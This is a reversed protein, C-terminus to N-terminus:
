LGARARALLWCGMAFILISVARRFADAPIKDLLARGLVTGALTGAAGLVIWRATAALLAPELGAYVPLRALDVALGVATSTAVFAQPSLPTELSLLAAARLGGQNGVLGGFAGSAAGALWALPAPVRLRQAWGSVNLAGALVLLVGLTLTLGPGGLRSHLLAGALGGAACSLGFGRLVSRDLDRRTLRLRLATAALHPITVAAVAAKMGVSLALVPTLLSGIGFGCVAAM